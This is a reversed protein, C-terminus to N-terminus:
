TDCIQSMVMKGIKM